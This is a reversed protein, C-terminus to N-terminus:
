LGSSIVEKLLKTLKMAKGRTDLAPEFDATEVMPHYIVEVKGITPFRAGRPWVRNGGRITVPLVPVGAEVALRAAGPKFELIKGDKFSRSGEPFVVLTDGAKLLELSIKMQSLAAGKELSVPFAGLKRIVPGVVLWGFVEDWAMFRLQRYVPLCIWYPDLYTQHNSAIVLGRGDDEPINEKGQFSIRWLTKGLAYGTCRLAAVVWPSPTEINHQSHKM